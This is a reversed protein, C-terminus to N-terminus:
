LGSDLCLTDAPRHKEPPELASTRGQGKPRRSAALRGQKSGREGDELCTVGVEAETTENKRTHKVM